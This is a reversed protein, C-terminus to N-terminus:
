LLKIELSKPVQHGQNSDLIHTGFPSYRNWLSTCYHYHRYISFVRDFRSVKEKKKKKRDEGGPIATSGSDVIPVGETQYSGEAGETRMETQDGAGAFGSSTAYTEPPHYTEPAYVIEAGETLQPPQLIPQEMEWQAVIPISLMWQSADMPDIMQNGDAIVGGFQLPEDNQGYLELGSQPLMWQSADMPGVMQNGNAIVGGFQLPEDNQGYLELGSQPGYVSVQFYM